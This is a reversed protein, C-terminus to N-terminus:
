EGVCVWWKEDGLLCGSGVYLIWGVYRVGILGGHVGGVCAHMGVPSLLWRYQSTFAFAATLVRYHPTRDSCCHAIPIIRHSPHPPPTHPPHQHHTHPPFSTHTQLTTHTYPHVDITCQLAYMSSFYLFVCMVRTYQMVNVSLLTRPWWVWWVTKGCGHEGETDGTEGHHQGDHQGDDHHM